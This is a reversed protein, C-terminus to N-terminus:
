ECAVSQAEHGFCECAVSPAEHAVLSRASLPRNHVRVRQAVYHVVGFPVLTKLLGGILM